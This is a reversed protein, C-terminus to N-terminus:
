LVLYNFHLFTKFNKQKVRDNVHLIIVMLDKNNNKKIVYIYIYIYIYINM